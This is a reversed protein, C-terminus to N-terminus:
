RKIHQINLSVIIYAIRWVVIIGLMVVLYEEYDLQDANYADIVDDGTQYYVVEGEEYDIDGIEEFENSLIANFGYHIPSIWYLWTWYVPLAEYQVLFGAFILCTANLLACTADALEQSPVLSAALEVSAIISHYSIVWAVWYRGFHGEFGVMFYLPITFFVSEVLTIPFEMVLRAMVWPTMTYMGSKTERFIYPRAKFMTPISQQATFGTLSICMFCISTRSITGTQNNDLDFFVWGLLISSFLMTIFRVATDQRKVVAQTRYFRTLLATFQQWCGPRTAKDVYPEQADDSMNIQKMEEMADIFRGSQLYKVDTKM